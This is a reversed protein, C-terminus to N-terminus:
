EEIEIPIEENVATENFLELNSRCIPCTTERECWMKLCDLHFAHNCRLRKGKVLDDTCIVCSGELDTEEVMDLDRSLKLYAKLLKIKKLLKSASMVFSKASSMPFKYEMTVIITFILYSFTKIILYIIHIIFIYLSRRNEVNFVGLSLIMLSRILGLTVFTYELAFLVIISMSYRVAQICIYSCVSSLVCWCIGFLLLKLNNTRQSKITFTFAVSKVAYFIAFVLAIKMNIESSFSSIILVMDSLMSYMKDNYVLVESETLRGLFLDSISFLSRFLIHVFLSSHLFHLYNTETITKLISYFSFQPAKRWVLFVLLISHSFIFGLNKM